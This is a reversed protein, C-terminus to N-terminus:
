KERRVHLKRAWTPSRKRAVFDRFAGFSLYSAKAFREAPGELCTARVTHASTKLTAYTTATRNSAPFSKVRQLSDCNIASKVRPLRAGIGNKKRKELHIVGRTSCRCRAKEYISTPVHTPSTSNQCPAGGRLTRAVACSTRLCGSQDQHVSNRSFRRSSQKPVRSHGRKRSSRHM